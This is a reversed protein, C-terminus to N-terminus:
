VAAGASISCINQLDDALGLARIYDTDVASQESALHKMRINNADNYHFAYALHVMTLTNIEASSGERPSTHYAVAEVVPDLLGWLSLLHAGIKADDVGMIENQAEHLSIDKEKALGAAEILENKFETLMILKGVDHLMGAMLAEESLGRPFGMVHAILRAKAGVETCASYIREISFGPVGPDDYQNFVGTALVISKISDLGLVKVAHEINEVPNRLGFYASNVMKLLKTSIGIDKSVLESIKTTSTDDSKLENLIKNYTVPPSPLSEISSIRDLLERKGFLRRLSLSKNIISKLSATETATTIYQHVFSETELILGTDIQEALLYRIVAPHKTRIEKFLQHLDM